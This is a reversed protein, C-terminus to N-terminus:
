RHLRSLLRPRQATLQALALQIRIEGTFTADQRKRRNWEIARQRLQNNRVSELLLELEKGNIALEQIRLDLSAGFNHAIRNLAAKITGPSAHAIEAALSIPLGKTLLFIAYNITKNSIHQRPRRTPHSSFTTNCTRCTIRRLEEGAATRYTGHAVLNQKGSSANPCRPNPCHYASLDISRPRGRPNPM